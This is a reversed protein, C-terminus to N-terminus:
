KRFLKRLFRRFASERPLFMANRFEESEMFRAVLEQLSMNNLNSTWNLWGDLDPKRDLLLRYCYYVDRKTAADWNTSSNLGSEAAKWENFSNSEAMPSRQKRTWLPLSKVYSSFNVIPRLLPSVRRAHFLGIAQGTPNLKVSFGQAELFNKLSHRNFEEIGKVKARPPVVSPPIEHYEGCIEKVIALYKATFLIPYEAGECDIKLIRIRRSLGQSAEFLIEDLGVTQVALGSDNYLVSLAGTNPQGYNVLPDNFLTVGASDSRWVALNRCVAKDDFRELNKVAIAYNIPHSEYAYVRAAGRILAAYSFSGIHAGIDIVVEDCALRYPLGYENLRAVGKFIQFDDTEPRVFFSPAGKWRRQVVQITKPGDATAITLIHTNGMM